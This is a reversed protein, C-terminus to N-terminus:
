LTSSKFEQDPHLLGEQQMRQWDVDKIQLNRIVAKVSKKLYDEIEPVSAIEDPNLSLDKYLNLSNYSIGYYRYDVILVKKGEKKHYYGCTISYNKSSLQENIIASRSYVVGICKLGQIYATWGKDYGIKQEKNIALTEPTNKLYNRRAEYDGGKDFLIDISMLKFPWSYVDIEYSAEKVFLNIEPAAKDNIYTNSTYESDILWDTTPAQYAVYKNNVIENKLLPRYPPASCATLLSVSLTLLILYYFSKM